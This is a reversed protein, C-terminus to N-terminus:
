RGERKLAEGIGRLRELFVGSILGQRDPPVNLLYNARRTNSATKRWVIEEVSWLDDPGSERWFWAKKHISDSVETPITNEPPPLRQKNGSWPYEYSLLDSEDLSRSNNALVLCEPQLSYVHARIEPWQPGTYPNSYQDIWLLDIRGYGTLLETLQKKVFGVFDGAAEPPLGHLDPAGPPLTRGRRSAFNNPLCYYLGVKLGRARFAGTYEKVLDGKGGRFNRFQTIDHTTHASDWLPWGETHKVTFVGYRMGVAAAEDAWQGTDLKGPSFLLPDEYGLAWERSVFTAIHFHLFMGFKWTLLEEALRARDQAAAARAAAV